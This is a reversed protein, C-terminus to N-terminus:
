KDDGPHSTLPTGLAGIAIFAFGLLTTMITRPIFKMEGVDPPGAQDSGLLGLKGLM